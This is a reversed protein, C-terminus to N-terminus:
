VARAPRGGEEVTKIDELVMTMSRAFSAGTIGGIHPSFIIRRSIERPQELLVHDKQVPECDLTDLGAMALKGSALAHILADDEVLEGRSTNVFYSGEKMKHFFDFDAMYETEPTVPLHLSVIDSQELLRDLPLYQVGYEKEREASLPHRKYYFIDRTGYAKLLHATRRAINGFGVLGVTCDSLERLSGSRIYGGKVQIQRGDRVAQDGNVVDRLMGVMLLVTQEAVASANMGQSSCVYIGRDAAAETDIQDYAVGESHIMRLNPMGAILDGSVRSIADAVIYDADKAQSLYEIDTLGRPMDIIELRSLYPNGAAYKEINGKEGIHLVKM